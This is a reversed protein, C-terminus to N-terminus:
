VNFHLVVCLFTSNCGYRNIYLHKQFYDMFFLYFYFKAIKICKNINALIIFLNIYKNTCVPYVMENYSIFKYIKSEGRGKIINLKIIKELISVVMLQLLFTNFAFLYSFLYTNRNIM